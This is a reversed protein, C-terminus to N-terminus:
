IAPNRHIYPLNSPLTKIQMRAGDAEDITVIRPVCTSDSESSASVELKAEVRKTIAAISRVSHVSRMSKCEDLISNAVSKTDDDSDKFDARDGLRSVDNEIMAGGNNANDELRQQDREIRKEEAEEHDVISQVQALQQEVQAVRAKTEVDDMFQDIDLNNAFDILDNTEADELMDLKEDATAKTLAWMPRNLDRKKEEAPGTGSIDDSENNDNRATERLKAERRLFRERRKQLAEEEETLTEQLRAREKQLDYLWKRHKSLATDKKDRRIAHAPESLIPVNLGLPEGPNGALFAAKSNDIMDNNSKTGQRCEKTVSSVGHFPRNCLMVGKYNDISIAASSTGTMDVM